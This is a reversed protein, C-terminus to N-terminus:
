ENKTMSIKIRDYLMFWALTLAGSIAGSLWSESIIKSIIPILFGIGYKILFAKM